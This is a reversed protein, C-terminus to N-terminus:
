NGIGLCLECDRQAGLLLLHKGCDPPFDREFELINGIDAGRWGYISQDPDGTACVNRHQEGLARAILYQAHNTDQYEDILIYRFRASLRAAFNDFLAPETSSGITAIRRRSVSAGSSVTITSKTVPM